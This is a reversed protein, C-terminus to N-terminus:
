DCFQPYKLFNELLHIFEELDTCSHAEQWSKDLTM